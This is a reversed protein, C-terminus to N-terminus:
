NIIDEHNKKKLATMTAGRNVICLSIALYGIFIYESLARPVAFFKCVRAGVWVGCVSIVPHLKNNGFIFQLTDNTM